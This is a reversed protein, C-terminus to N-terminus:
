LAEALATRRSSSSSREEPGLGAWSPAAMLVLPGWFFALKRARTNPQELTFDEV